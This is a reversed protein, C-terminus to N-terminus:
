AGMIREHFESLKLKVESADASQLVNDLLAKCDNMTLKSILRRKNLVEGPVMSLKTYGMAIWLPIFEDKGGSEGCIGLNLGYKQGEDALLKMMRIFGLHYPSYLDQLDPNMRDVALSYQMLDNTGVSIFSVYEKLEKMEFILSPIEIMTGLKFSKNKYDSNLLLEQQCEDVLLKMKKAEAAHSVMPTMISLNGFDNAVLLAKIQTKFLPLDKLCYRIARVGLFPNEEKKIQIYDIPKDGGVDLTRIIVEQSSFLSLVQYYASMQEDLSPASKREMFLFETRFLGIGESDGSLAAKADEFNGINGMLNMSHLDHTSTKKGVFHTLANQDSQQALIIKQFYDRTNPSTAEFISGEKGDLAIEMGTTITETIGSLGSIAPIGLTRAIIATHSTEGGKETIIGMVKERDLGITQSPTLDETILIVQNKIGSLTSRAEPHLAHLLQARLDKLDLVRERMYDSDAESFVLIHAEFSMRIASEATQQDQEISTKIPQILEEDQLMMLHAEFIEAEEPGVDRKTKEIMLEISKLVTAQASEFRAVEIAAGQFPKEILPAEDRFVFASGVAIGKSVGNGCVIPAFPHKSSVVGM